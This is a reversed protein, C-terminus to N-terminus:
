DDELVIVRGFEGCVETVGSIISDALGLNAPREVIRVSNFGTINEILQRVERVAAEAALDKPGDSFVILDTAGALENRRL